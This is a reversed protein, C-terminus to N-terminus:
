PLALLVIRHPFLDGEEYDQGVLELRKILGQEQYTDLQYYVTRVNFIGSERVLHILRDVSFFFHREEAKEFYKDFTRWLIEYLLSIHLKNDIRADADGVIDKTVSKGINDTLLWNLCEIALKNRPAFDVYKNVEPKVLDYIVITGDSKTVRAMEELAGLVKKEGFAAIEHLIGGCFIADFQDKLFPLNIADARIFMIEKGFNKKKLRRECFELVEEEVDLAFILGNNSLQRAIRQTIPGIGCGVDLIIDEERINSNEIMKDFLLKRDNDINVLIDILNEAERNM